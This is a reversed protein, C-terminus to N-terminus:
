EEVVEVASLKLRRVCAQTHKSCRCWESQSCSTDIDDKSRIDGVWQESRESGGDGVNWLFPARGSVTLRRSVPRVDNMSANTRLPWVGACNRVTGPCSRPGSRM